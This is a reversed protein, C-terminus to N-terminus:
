ECECPLRVKEEDGLIKKAKTWFTGAPIRETAEIGLQKMKEFKEALDSLFHGKIISYGIEDEAWLGKQWIDPRTCYVVYWHQMGAKLCGVCNAHKFVNYGQPPQIGIESISKITPTWLCPFDTRYGKAAMISSRRQIRSKEPVGFGYYIVCTQDVNNERLWQHFPETKLRSTCLATGTGVKFAGAEVVVDFQDKEEWDPHNAYTIPVGCYSSVEAKFRKVDADEVRSCIDHNLLILDSNGYRRYVEVAALASGEGGSFCVIHKNSLQM